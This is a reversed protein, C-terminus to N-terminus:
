PIKFKCKQCKHNKDAHYKGVFVMVDGGCVSCKRKVKIEPSASTLPNKKPNKKKRFFKTIFEFM